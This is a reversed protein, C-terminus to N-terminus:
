SEDKGEEGLRRMGTEVQDLIRRRETGYSESSMPEGIRVRVRGRRPIFRGIPLVEDTGEIWVPVVPVPHAELLLGIGPRLPELGEGSGRQGEPFWILPHGRNLCAAALALSRRPAAGADIPLVRATHSFWRRPPSSFMMGTWGAWFLPDIHDRRMSGILAIPDYASIHRATILYSGTAPWEGEVEVRVVFRNLLNCVGLALRATAHRVPGRPALLRRDEDDLLSEPAQLADILSGGADAEGDPQDAQIAEQLLDRVTEVRGIADDGLEVGARERLAMGLDVWSLSDLGLDRHLRSDPTLRENAFREALFDWTATAVPDARLSQDEPAREEPDMPAQQTVKEGSQLQQYLEELRHRRLKGLRTRPLPDPSVQVDGIAHHGPLNNMAERVAEDLRQDRADETEEVNGPEPVLVAALQGDVELVGAERVAPQESLAGEIREPDINEGGPLVITSSIRGALRLYGDEDFEGADGTHYWGQEDIVEHHPEAENLYGDFVNPGRAVVEGNSISVEVGPLPRGATHLRADRPANITLIPSTETLGYGTAVTWGLAQLREGLQADLAAGGSVALRLSPALRKMVPRFIVRGANVGLRRQLFICAGMVGSLVTQRWRRGATLRAELRSWLASYLRPVGLLITAESDRLAEAIRPGVLSQPLVMTAGISLTTILGISFPYVHHLPLPVLVRDGNHAIGEDLLASVNTTINAHTLPVGKPPGTTGSTYFIAAIADPTPARSELDPADQSAASAESTEDPKLSHIRETAVANPLRRRLDDSTFIRWPGADSIVHALDREGMQADVPVVTGGATLTALATEVWEPSNAAFIMVRGGPKLGDALLAKARQEIGAQLREHSVSCPGDPTYAVLAPRETTRGGARILAPISRADM